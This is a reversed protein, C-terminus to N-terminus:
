LAIISANIRSALLDAIVSRHCDEHLREYCLLATPKKQVSEALRGLHAAMTRRAYARFQQSFAEFDGSSKLEERQEVSSGLFPWSQYEIGAEDCFAKIATARFDPKRSMPRERVDALVKIRQNRLVNMLEEGDRREYGITYIAIGTGERITRVSGGSETIKTGFATLARANSARRREIDDGSLKMRLRKRQLDLFAAYPMYRDANLWTAWLFSVRRAPGCLDNLWKDRMAAIADPYRKLYQRWTEGFEWALVM